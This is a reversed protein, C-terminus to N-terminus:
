YGGGSRRFAIRHNADREDTAMFGNGWQEVRFTLRGAELRANAFSGDFHNRGAYGSVSGGPLITLQVDTRERDDYGSFSGVAWSPLDSSQQGGGKNAALAALIAIGAIAVGAAVADNKGGDKGVRFEAECGRDVWVGYQDFGWSSGQACRAGSIQRELTVQNDTNVRCYQYRHGESACHVTRAAAAPLPAAALTVSLLAVLPRAIKNAPM